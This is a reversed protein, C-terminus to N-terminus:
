FDGGAGRPKSVKNERGSRFVFAERQNSVITSTQGLTPDFVTETKVGLVNVSSLVVPDLNVGSARIDDECANSASTAQIKIARLLAHSKGFNVKPMNNAVQVAGEFLDNILPLNRQNFKLRNAATIMKARGRGVANSIAPTWASFANQRKQEAAVDAQHQAAFQGVMGILNDVQEACNGGKARGGPRREGGAFLRGAKANLESHGDRLLELEGDFGNSGLKHKHGKVYYNGSLRKGMGSLRVLSKAVLSPDGVIAMKMKITKQRIRKHKGRTQRRADGETKASSSGLVFRAGRALLTELPGVIESGAEIVRGVASSRFIVAAKKAEEQGVQEADIGLLKGADRKLDATLEFDKKKLPDRGRVVSMAPRGTIDNDISFSKITGSNDAFWTLERIPSQEVNRSHWHFGDFDIFFQFGEKVALERIFAADTQRVQQVHEIVEETEEIEQVDPGFGNAEAIKAVIQARTMESFCRNQQVTDLLFAVDYGEIKLQTSGTVKKIVVRRAPAMNGIYGWSLELINGKAWVDEDFNSLDWNDVTLKLQDAKKEHDEFEFSLVRKSVDIRTGRKKGAQILRVYFVPEDRSSM